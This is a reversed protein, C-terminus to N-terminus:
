HCFSRVDNEAIERDNQDVNAGSHHKATGNLIDRALNCKATDTEERYQSKSSGNQAPAASSRSAQEELKRKRQEEFKKEQEQWPQTSRDSSQVTETHPNAKVEQANAKGADDKKESYHTHGADDVWKYIQAECAFSMLFIPLCALMASWRLKVNNM